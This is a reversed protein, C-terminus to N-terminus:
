FSNESKFNEDDSSGNEVTASFYAAGGRLKALQRSM